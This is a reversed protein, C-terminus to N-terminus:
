SPWRGALRRLLVIQGCHYSNHGILGQVLKLLPARRGPPPSSLRDPSLAGVATVLERHGLYLRELARQWAQPTPPEEPAPWNPEGGHGPPAFPEPRGSRGLTGHLVLGQEYAMHNVLDWISYLGPSPRFLATAADLSRLAGTVPTHWGNQENSFLGDLHDALATADL